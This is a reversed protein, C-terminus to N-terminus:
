PPMKLISPMIAKGAMCRQVSSPLQSAAALRSRKLRPGKDVNGGVPGPTDAADFHQRSLKRPDGRSSTSLRLKVSLQAQAKVLQDLIKVRAPREKPKAKNLDSFARDVLLTIRVFSSLLYVDAPSFQEVPCNSVIERFLAAESESLNGPPQLRDRETEFPLSKLAERSLRAM